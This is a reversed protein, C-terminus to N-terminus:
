PGAGANWFSAYSRHLGTGDGCRIDPEARRGHARRALRAASAALSFDEYWPDVDALDNLLDIM